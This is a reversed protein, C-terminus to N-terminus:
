SRAARSTPASLRSRRPRPPLGAGDGLLGRRCEHRPVARPLQDAREHDRPQPDAPTRAAARARHAACGPTTAASGLTRMLGLAPQGPRRVVTGRLQLHDRDASREPRGTLQLQGTRRQRRDRQRKGAAQRQHLAARDSVRGFGPASAPHTDALRRPLHREGRASRAARLLDRPPRRAGWRGPPPQHGRQARAGRQRGRLHRGSERLKRGDM